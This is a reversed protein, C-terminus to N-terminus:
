LDGSPSFVVWLTESRSLNQEWVWTNDRRQWGPSTARVQYGEPPILVVRAPLARLGPQKRLTLRYRWWGGPLAELLTAPLRTHVTLTLQRGPPLVFFGELVHSGAPGKEITTGGAWPIGSLLWEGPVPTETASLLPIQDPVVLRWFDWYCRETMEAYRGQQGYRAEHRCPVQVQLPHRYTMQIEGQGDPFRSWDVTYQLARQLVADVKNFGLNSDVWAVGDSQFHIGGDLGSRELLSQAAADQRYLLVHGAQLNHILTQALRAWVQPSDQQLTRELIAKGLLPIFDKRHEWWDWTVGEEPAPAWAQHLVTELNDASVPTPFGPAEVPGIVQLIAILVEQDLAIVGDVVHGTSLTYLDAVQHAATPFDPAWNGDRPLWLGARMFLQLPWPPPPYPQSLDDVAYSDRVSLAQIQGGAVTVEGLASIFGGSARLEDRNQVMLLYTRPAHMGLLDPALAALGVAAQLTDFHQEATWLWDQLPTPLLQPILAQRARAAREVAAVAQPLTDPWPAALLAERGPREALALLLPRYGDVLIAGAQLWETAYDIAPEVQGAAALGPLHALGRLCPFLPRLLGRALRMETALRPVAALAGTPPVSSVTSVQQKLHWAEGALVLGDLLLIGLWLALLIGPWRKWHSM